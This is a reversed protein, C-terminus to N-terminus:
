AIALRFGMVYILFLCHTMPAIVGVSRIVQLSGSVGALRCVGALGEKRVQSVALIIVLLDLCFVGVVVWTLPFKDLRKWIQATHMAKTLFLSAILGSIGVYVALSKALLETSSNDSRESGSSTSTM